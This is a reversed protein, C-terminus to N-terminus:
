PKEAVIVGSILRGKEMAAKMATLSRLFAIAQRAEAVGLEAIFRWASLQRVLSLADDWTKITFTTTDEASVIHYGLDTFWLMYEPLSHLSALLMGRRVADILRDHSVDSSDDGLMWDFIVFRGNPKLFRNAAEIFKLQDRLHTAAALVWIVDFQTDFHMDEADMLLFTCDDGRERATKRAMNVQVPSITIGVTSAGLNRALWFSSGGIGCGVDLVSEGRRIGALGALYKVLNEQAEERSERGTAYYGDHIHEGYLETYYHSGIDYFRRVLDKHREDAPAAVRSFSPRRRHLNIISM